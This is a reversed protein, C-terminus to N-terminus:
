KLVAKDTNRRFQNFQKRATKATIGPMTELILNLAAIRVLKKNLM